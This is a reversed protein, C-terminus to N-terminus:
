IKILEVIIKKDFYYNDELVNDMTIKIDHAKIIEDKVQAKARITKTFCKDSSISVSPPPTTPPPPTSGGGGGGGGGGGCASVFIISLFASYIKNM